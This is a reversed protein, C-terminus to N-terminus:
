TQVIKGYKGLKRAIGAGHFFTIALSWTQLCLCVTWFVGTGRPTKLVRCALYSRPSSPLGLLVRHRSALAQDLVGPLASIGSRGHVRAQRRAQKLLQDVLKTPRVCGAIRSLTELGNAELRTLEKM